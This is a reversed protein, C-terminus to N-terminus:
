SHLRCLVVILRIRHGDRATSTREYSTHLRQGGGLQKMRQGNTEAKIRSTGSSTRHQLTAEAAETEADCTSAYDPGGSSVGHLRHFCHVSRRLPRCSRPHWPRTQCQLGMGSAVVERIVCELIKSPPMTGTHCSFVGTPAVRLEKAKGGGAPIAARCFEDNGFVACPLKFCHDQCPIWGCSVDLSPWSSSCENAILGDTQSLPLSHIVTCAETLAVFRAM